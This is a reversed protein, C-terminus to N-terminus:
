RKGKKGKGKGKGGSRAAAAKEAEEEALLADAAANAKAEKEELEAAREGFAAQSGEDHPLPPLASLLTTLARLEHHEPQRLGDVAGGAAPRVVSASLRELRHMIYCSRM